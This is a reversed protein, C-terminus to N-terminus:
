KNTSRHFNLTDYFSASTEVRKPCAQYRGSSHGPCSEKQNVVFDLLWFAEITWRVCLFSKIWHFNRSPTVRKPGFVITSNHTISNQPLSTTTNWHRSPSWTGCLLFFSSSQGCAGKRPPPLLNVLGVRRRLLLSNSNTISPLTRTDTSFRLWYYLSRFSNVDVTKPLMTVWVRSKFQVTLYSM